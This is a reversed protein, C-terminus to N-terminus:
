NIESDLNEAPTKIEKSEQSSKETKPIPFLPESIGVNLAFQESPQPQVQEIPQQSAFQPLPSNNQNFLGTIAGLACAAIAAGGFLATVRSRRKIRTLVRQVTEEVPRSSQPVPISRMGQRLNLLRAYLQQVDPDHDLWAQVQRREDASVEGDLYASLLEFRDRKEMDFDGTLNNTPNVNGTHEPGVPSHDNCNSNTNM